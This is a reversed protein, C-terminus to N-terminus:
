LLSADFDAAKAAEGASAAKGPVSMVPAKASSAAPGAAIAVSAPEDHAPAGNSDSASLHQRLHDVSGFFNRVLRDLARKRMEDRSVRPIYVGARGDKRREVVGKRALRDMVTLVTTYALKRGRNELAQRVEAVTARGNTWLASM